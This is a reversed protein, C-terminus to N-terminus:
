QWHRHHRAPNRHRDSQNRIPVNGANANPHAYIDSNSYRYGDGYRYSHGYAYIHGFAYVHGFAHAHFYGDSHAYFYSNGNGNIYPYAYTFRVAGTLWHAGPRYCGAPERWRHYRM